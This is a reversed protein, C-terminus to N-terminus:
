AGVTLSTYNPPLPQSTDAEFNRRLRLIQVDISRTRSRRWCRRMVCQRPRRAFATVMPGNCYEVLSVWHRRPASRLKRLCSRPCVLGEVGTRLVTPQSPERKARISGPQSPEV